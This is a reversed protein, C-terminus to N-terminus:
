LLNTPLVKLESRCSQQKLKGKATEMNERMTHYPFVWRGRGGVAEDVGGHKRLRFVLGGDGGEDEVIMQTCLVGTGSLPSWRFNIKNTTVLLYM